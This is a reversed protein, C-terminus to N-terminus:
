RLNIAALAGENNLIYLVGRASVALSGGLPYSWVVKRTALDIAQTNSASTVFALNRTVIVQAYSGLLSTTWLRKGTAVAHAELTAGAQDFAYVVGNGYAPVGFAPTASVWLRQQTALDFAALGGVGTAVVAQQTDTLVVPLSRFLTSGPYPAGIDNALTGDAANFRYFVGNPTSYAYVFRGDTAPSWGEQIKVGNSWSFRGEKGAYRAIGGYYGDISYVDSGFVTPASYRTFQSSMAVKEIQAGTAQDFVWMFSEDGTSTLYVRGNALAPPNVQTLAGLDVKWALQGSDESMALLEWRNFTSHRVFFAKGGEVVTSPYENVYNIASAVNWRRSFAAPDFSADVFGTHAANGQYTTWSGLGDVPKLATLNIPPTVTLTLPVVWPSGGVPQQCTTINDYCMRLQLNSTHKGVPLPNTTTALTFIFRGDDGRAVIPSPMTLGSPDVIGLSAQRAGLEANLRAEISFYTSEGSTATANVSPASLTLRAAGEARSKVQVTLPLRWPSGPLPKACVLPDDECLRVSLMTTHTGAGLTPATRLQARYRLESLASILVQTTVVGSPDIIAVNFPAAFTRTATAIVDVPVSEGEYLTASPAAPSFTLWAGAPNGTDPGPPTGAGPNGPAPTGPAPNGPAPNGPAPTGGSTGGGGGSGGGCAILNLALVCAAVTGFRFTM